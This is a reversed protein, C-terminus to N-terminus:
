SNTWDRIPLPATESIRRMRRTVARGRAVRIREIEERVKDASFPKLLVTDAVPSADVEEYGTVLFLYPPNASSRLAALVATGSMKPMTMDCLVVDFPLETEATRVRAIADAADTTVVVDHERLLRQIARALCVDDDVILIKM